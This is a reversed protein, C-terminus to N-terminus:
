RIQRMRLFLVIDRSGIRGMNGLHDLMVEDFVEVLGEVVVDYVHDAVDDTVVTEVVVNNERREGGLRDLDNVGALVVVVVLDDVEEFYRKRMGGM